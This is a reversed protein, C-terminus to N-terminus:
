RRGGGHEQAHAPLPGATQGAREPLDARDFRGQRQTCGTEGDCGSAGARVSGRPGESELWSGDGSIVIASGHLLMKFYPSNVIATREALLRVCLSLIRSRHKNDADKWCSGFIGRWYAKFGSLCSIGKACEYKLSNSANSLFKSAHIDDFWAAHSSQFALM